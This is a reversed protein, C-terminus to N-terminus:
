QMAIDGSVPATIGKRSLLEGYLALTEDVMRDLGFTSEVVRRGELGLRRALAPDSVLQVIAEALADSDGPPVLIGAGERLIEPVGGVTTAIVARGSALSELIAMPSGETFSPLVTFLCEKLREAVDDISGLFKVDGAVGLRDALTRLTAEEPGSGALELHVTGRGLRRIVEAFAELLIAHGKYRILNAIVLIRPPGEGYPIPEHPPIEVGNRVIRVKREPVRGVRVTDDRVTESVCIIADALRDALLEWPFLLREAGRSNSLSHRCSVTVPVGALKGVPVGLRYGWYLYCQLVDPTAERLMEKM